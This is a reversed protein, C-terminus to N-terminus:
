WRQRHEEIQRLQGLRLQGRRGLRARPRLVKFADDSLQYIAM